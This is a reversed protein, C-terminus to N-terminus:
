IQYRPRMGNAVAVFLLQILVILILFPWLMASSFGTSGNSMVSMIIISFAILLPPFVIGFILYFLILPNLKQGYSKLEIIQERALQEVVAELSDALNAGSAVSNAVQLLVRKAAQSPCHAIAQRFAQSTPTGTMMSDVIGKFLNSVEGYGETVGVLADFLSMGSRLSIIIHRCAFVLQEDIKKSRVIIAFDPYVKFYLFFLILFIPLFLLLWVLDIYPFFLVISVLWFFLTYIVINRGIEGVFVYPSKDIGALRMKEKVGPFYPMLMEGVPDTEEPVEVQTSVFSSVKKSM